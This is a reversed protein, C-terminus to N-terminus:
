AFLGGNATLVWGRFADLRSELLALDWIAAKDHIFPPAILFVHASRLYASIGSRAIQRAMPVNRALTTPRPPRHDELDTDPSARRIPPYCIEERPTRRRRVVSNHASPVLSPTVANMPYFEATSSIPQLGAQNEWNPPARVAASISSGSDPQSLYSPEDELFQMGCGGSRVCDAKRCRSCTHFSSAM